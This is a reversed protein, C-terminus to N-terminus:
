ASIPQSEAESQNLEESERRVEATAAQAARYAQVKRWNQLEENGRARMLLEAPNLSFLEIGMTKM